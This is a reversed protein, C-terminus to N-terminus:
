KKLTKKKNDDKIMKVKLDHKAKDAPSLRAYRLKEAKEMELKLVEHAKMMETPDEAYTELRKGCWMCFRVNVYDTEALDITDDKHVEYYLPNMEDCCQKVKLRATIIAM